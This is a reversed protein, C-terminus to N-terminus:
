KKDGQVATPVAKHWHTEQQYQHAINLLRGEQFYNGILQLGTPRGDIFGGPFSLGPLGALNVSVTYIDCLYM